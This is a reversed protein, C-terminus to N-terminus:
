RATFETAPETDPPIAAALQPFIGRMLVLNERAAEIDALQEPAPPVPLM